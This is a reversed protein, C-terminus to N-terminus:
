ERVLEVRRNLARGEITSNTAKPRSAGFGEPSMRDATIGYESILAQKVAEARRQSLQMNYADGGVNDTHGDIKIKWNPNNKLADSIEKLVPASEPRLKASNFDFYIGYIEAHGTQALEQEIKKEVPFTIKVYTIHWNTEPCTIKLIIPNAEDDLIWAEYLHGSLSGKAHISPLDKQDGNVIINYPVDQPEVRNFAGKKLGVLRITNTGGNYADFLVMEAPKGAKLERFVDRSLSFATSGAITGPNNPGFMTELERGHMMDAICLTRNYTTGTGDLRKSSMEITSSHVGEVTDLIEVDQMNKKFDTWIDTLTLQAKLPISASAATTVYDDFGTRDKYECDASPRSEYKAAGGSAPQGPGNKVETAIETVKRKVRYGVYVCTGIGAVTILALLGLVIVAIKLLPNSKKETSPAAAPVPPAAVANSPTAPTEARPPAAPIPTAPTPPAPAAPQPAKPAEAEAVPKGCKSCFKMGPDLATGCYACFRNGPSAPAPQARK